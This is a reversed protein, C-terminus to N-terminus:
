EASADGPVVTGGVMNRRDKRSAGYRRLVVGLAKSITALKAEAVDVIGGKKAAERIRQAAITNDASLSGEVAQEDYVADLLKVYSEDDYLTTHLAEVQDNLTLRAKIQRVWNGGESVRPVRQAPDLVARQTNM